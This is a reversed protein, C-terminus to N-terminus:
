PELRYGVRHITRIISEQADTDLTQRLRKISSRIADASYSSHSSYVHELLAEPSFVQNPHRLLFELLAADSRYLFAEQGNRKVSASKPNFEFGRLTLVEEQLNRCRRLLAGIRLSLEKLAFPKTLYDDVGAAYGQEKDALDGKATMMLVPVAGGESRHNKCVDLGSLGPLNCDLLVIDYPLRRLMDLAEKGNHTIDLVYHEAELYDRILNALNSDDEVILIKAM